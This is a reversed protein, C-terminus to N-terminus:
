SKALDLMKAVAPNPNEIDAESHITVTPIAGLEVHTRMRLEQKEDRGALGSYGMTRCLQGFLFEGLACTGTRELGPISDQWSKFLHAQAFSQGQFTIENRGEGGVVLGPGLDAVERILKQIGETSTTSEVLCNHLNHTVLTVDLFASSLALDRAAAAINRSLISRWLSLGPHIKVMVKKDRNVSRSANSEPVGLGHGQYWSWGRLDQKDVGRYQFDRLFAYSPHSPDMDLANFHPMVRFGMSQGKSIFQRAADSPTYDPYNEDYASTRWDPYHLLVRTPDLRRALADLIAPKGPCWSIVFRIQPLWPVRRAEEAALNYAQWLWDRYITAPRTWDGDHVNLRWELGGAALNSDIPGYAETDFGLQRPRSATGVKLSKYRYQSDRVHVSFGGSKGHLIALGAEWHFPWPWHSNRILPDDLRLRIGQFFPAVLELDERVGGLNWRCARIGPRSSSAAPAVLIDGSVPDARIELIGDGDWAHVVFEAALDSRQHLEIAGFKATDIPVKEDARYILELAPGSTPDLDRIFEESTRRNKLSTLWGNEFVATASHTSVLLRQGEIRLSAASPPGVVHTPGAAHPKSPTEAAHAALVTSTAVATGTSRLFHRRNM